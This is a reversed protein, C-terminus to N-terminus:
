QRRAVLSFAAERHEGPQVLFVGATNFGADDLTFADNANTVPEVAFFPENRPIYVVVHELLADAEIDISAAGPYTISAALGSTRGTLCDDVFETGLPRQERFDARAPLDGAPSSAMAHELAYGQDCFVQLLAEDGVAVGDGALLTRMFYPHHGFGAPFTEGDTNTLRMRCEFREDTLSYEYRATFSWPFNVGCVARSDFELVASTASTSVVEWPFEHATGHCATGDPFNIRLQYAHGQWRLKGERIRNSWPVLPFSAADGPDALSGVEAPRLLDVWTGALSIQASAVSGGVAPALTVRWHDNALTVSQTM